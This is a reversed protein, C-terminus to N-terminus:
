KTKKKEKKKAKEEELESSSRLRLNDLIDIVGDVKKGRMESMDKIITWGLEIIPISTEVATSEHQTDSKKIPILKKYTSDANKLNLIYRNICGKSGPIDAFAHMRYYDNLQRFLKASNKARMDTALQYIVADIQLRLSNYTKLASGDIEKGPEDLIGLLRAESAHKIQVLQSVLGLYQAEKKAAFINASLAVLLFIISTVKKM